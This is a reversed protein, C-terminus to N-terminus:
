EHRLAEMPDVGAARGAPILCAVSAAVLLLAPVLSFTVWDLAPVRFLFSHLSRVLGVSCALGLILGSIVVRFSQRFFLIVVSKRSAGLAIRLGVEGTRQRVSYALSGYLGIMALVMAMFGFLGLLTTQFRRGSTSHDVLNRMQQTDALALDPDLNKVIFRLDAVVSSQSLSSKVAVYLGNPLFQDNHSQWFPYYVQAPVASELGMHQVDGVVGVITVWPNGPASRIRHGLANSGYFYNRVFVQNVVAVLPKGPQDGDTFGRGQLLPIQMASFYGPTIGRAEQLRMESNPFGEVQIDSLGESGSLPLADILGVAQVGPLSRVRQLLDTAFVQEKHSTNYRPNMRGPDILESSFQINAVVTSDAFGRPVSLVNVYSRLILGTASLLVVVLSVQAFVLLNRTGSRGGLMGRMGGRQLFETLKIRSATFAPLMGFLFTTILVVLIVFGLVHWDVTTEELRPIDGPNLKLFLELFLKACGVGLVGAAVSLLLAETLTQRILRGRRAGLTARVGFEHTRSLMRAMLLNAANFCSILLVLAVAGALLWMLPRVPGFAADSFPKLRAYWGRWQPGRQNEFGAILSTMEAQAEKLTVGDRLRVLTFGDVGDLDAKQTPTLAHPIWLQTTEIRPNGFKLDSKHPFGFASPMVGIVRYTRGELRLIDGLVDARGAFLSQWLSYSIIAVQDQGTTEESADFTRGFLPTLQLTRFFDEDVKAVGVRESKDRLALSYTAQNFLTMSSFSHNSKRIDFFEATKPGFTEEFGPMRSNPTFFYALRDPAGYPLSRLLVANVLSFVSTCAGIGLALTFIAVVSFSRQKLLTRFGYRLDQWFDDIWSTGRAEYCQATMEPISGFAATAARQAEDRSMGRAINAAIQADLHFQLEENLEVNATDKSWFSLWRRRISQLLRM